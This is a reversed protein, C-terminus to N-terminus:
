AVRRITPMAHKPRRRQAERLADNAKDLARRTAMLEAELATYSDGIADDHRKMAERWDQYEVVLRALQVPSMVILQAFTFRTGGIIKALASM